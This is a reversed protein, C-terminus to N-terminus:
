GNFVKGKESAGKSERKGKRKGHSQREEKRLKTFDGWSFWMFISMNTEICAIIYLSWSMKIKGEDKSVALLAQAGGKEKENGRKREASFGFM